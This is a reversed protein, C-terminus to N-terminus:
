QAIPGIGTSYRPKRNIIQSSIADRQIQGRGFHLLIRVRQSYCLFNTGITSIGQPKTNYAPVSSCNLLIQNQEWIGAKRRTDVM